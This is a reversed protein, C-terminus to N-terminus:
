AASSSTPSPSGPGDVESGKFVKANHYEIYRAEISHGAVRRLDSLQLRVAGYDLMVHHNPCLVVINAAIDPGHHPKGLPQVHHAESYSSGDALLLKLGCLQCVDKYLAKLKRTMETDRLIRYVQQQVREPVDPESVDVALPAGKLMERLGWVGSGLGDVSYFVPNGRFGKSEPAHDQIRRQVGNKWSPPL